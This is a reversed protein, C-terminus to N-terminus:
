RVDKYVCDQCARTCPLCACSAGHTRQTSTPFLVCVIWCCKSLACSPACRAALNSHVAPGPLVPLFTTVSWIVENSCVAFPHPATRKCSRLQSCKATQPRGPQADAGCTACHWPARARRRMRLLLLALKSALQGARWMALTVNARANNFHDCCVRQRSGNLLVPM